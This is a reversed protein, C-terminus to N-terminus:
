ERSHQLYASLVRPTGAAEQEIMELTERMERLTRFKTYRGDAYRVELAGTAIAEKLRDVDTQTWAM